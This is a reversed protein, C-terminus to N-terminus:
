EQDPAPRFLEECAPFPKPSRECWSRQQLAQHCCWGCDRALCSPSHFSILVIITFCSVQIVAQGDDTTKPNLIIDLEMEGLEM